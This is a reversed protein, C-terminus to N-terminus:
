GYEEDNTGGWLLIERNTFRAIQIARNNHIIAIEIDKGKSYRWLVAGAAQVVVEESM